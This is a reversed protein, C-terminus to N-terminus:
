KFCTECYIERIEPDDLIQFNLYPSNFYTCFEPGKIQAIRKFHKLINKRSQTKDLYYILKLFFVVEDPNKSRYIVKETLSSAFSYDKFFTYYSALEFIESVSLKAPKIFAKARNYLYKHKGFRYYLQWDLESAFNLAIRAKITPDLFQMALLTDFYNRSKKFDYSRWKPYNLIALNTNVRINKPDLTKLINLSDEFETLRNINTSDLRYIMLYRDCLLDVYKKKRPLKLKKIDDVPIKNESALCYEMSQLKKCDKVNENSINNQFMPYLTDKSMQHKEYRNAYISVEAYRHNSLIPELENSLGKNIISKIEPNSNELLKEYKTGVIDKRFDAFNENSSVAIMTSDIGLEILRQTIIDARSAYLKINSEESGEISSHGAVNIAKINTLNKNVFATIPRLLSDQVSNTSKGFKLRYTLTDNFEVLYFKELSDLYLNMSVDVHFETPLVNYIIPMCTRKNNIVTLNVEYDQNIWKPIVGLEIYIFKWFFINRGARFKKKFVPELPIGRVGTKGNFVINGNCNYQEKLVIDAALGYRWRNFRLRRYIFKTKFIPAAGEYVILSDNIVVLEGVLLKKGCKRCRKEKTPKYKYTLVSDRYTNKYADSGFLQCAYIKGDPGIKVSTFTTTYNKNIMNAYHPPSNRWGTVLVKALQECNQIDHKKQIKMWTQQVNEGVTAFQEGYYDVRNKPTKKSKSKQFHTLKDHNSMYICHDNGAPSLLPENYLPPVNVKERHKNVEELIYKNLLNADCLGNDLSNQATLNFSILLSLIILYLFKM